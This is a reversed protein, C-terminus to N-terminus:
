PCTQTFRAVTGEIASSCRVFQSGFGEFRSTTSTTYIEVGGDPLTREFCGIEGNGVCSRPQCDFVTLSAALCKADLNALRGERVCCASGQCTGADLVCVPEAADVAGDVAAVVADNMSIEGCAGFVLFSACSGIAFLVRYANKM